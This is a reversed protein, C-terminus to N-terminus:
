AMKEKRDKIFNSELELLEKKLEKKKASPLSKLEKDMDIPNKFCFNIKNEYERECCRAARSAPSPLPVLEYPKIRVLFNYIKYPKSDKDCRKYVIIEIDEIISFACKVQYMLWKLFGISALDDLPLKDIQITGFKKDFSKKFNKGEKYNHEILDRYEDEIVYDARDEKARETVWLEYPKKLLAQQFIISRISYFIDRSTQSMKHIDGWFDLNIVDFPFYSWFRGFDKDRSDTSIKEIEGEFGNDDQFTKNLIEFKDSDKECYVFSPNSASNGIASGVLRKKRFLRIDFATEGCLSFYKASEIERARILSRIRKAWYYVRIYHKTLDNSFGREGSKSVYIVGSRAAKKAKELKTPKKM